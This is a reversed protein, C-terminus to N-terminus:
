GVFLKAARRMHAAVDVGHPCARNAPAYDVGAIRRASEPLQAFLTRAAEPKGYTDHYTLLRLTDAIQVPADVAPGCLHDCGDCAFRRTAEAYKQVAETDLAGLKNQDVAAAVNERVKDLTDMESVLGTIRDDAWVAKLVAQYKNWRGSSQIKQWKKQFSAESGQTKMAILGIGAKAARDIARNLARDGYQRFNYRFMVVEVWPTKAAAELLEVVNSAHTSFGFHRIKGSKKLQEVRRAMTADLYRADKLAHLFFLEVHDTKLKDLSVDLSAAMEDPDHKRSKTTIWIRDRNNLRQHFNALAVEGKGGVYVRSTDFYDVGSRFAEAFKFDFTIDVPMSGGMM